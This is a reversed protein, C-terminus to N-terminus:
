SVFTKRDVVRIRDVKSCTNQSRETSRQHDCRQLNSKLDASLATRSERSCRGLHRGRGSSDDFGSLNLFASEVLFVMSPFGEGRFDRFEAGEVRNSSDAAM